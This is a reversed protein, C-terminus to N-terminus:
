LDIELHDDLENFDNEVQPIFNAFTDEFSLLTELLAKELDPAEFIADFRAQMQAWTDAPIAEKAGRDPLLYVMKEFASVFILLGIRRETEHINAKQFLARAYREVQRRQTDKSVLKRHLPKIRETLVFGLGFSLLVAAYFTFDGFVWHSFMLFSFVLFASAVGVKWAADIYTASRPKAILVLEIHSKQEIQAVAKRLDTQMQKSFYAM